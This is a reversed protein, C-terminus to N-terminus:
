QYFKQNALIFPTCTIILYFILHNKPCCPQIQLGLWVYYRITYNTINFTAAYQAPTGHFMATTPWVYVWWHNPHTRKLGLTDSNNEIRWIRRSWILWHQQFNKTPSRITHLSYHMYTRHHCSILCNQPRGAPSTTVITVCRCLLSILSNYILVSGFMTNITLKLSLQLLIVCATPDTQCNLLNWQYMNYLVRTFTSTLKLRENHCFM